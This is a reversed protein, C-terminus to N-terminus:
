TEATLIMQLIKKKHYIKTSKNEEVKRCQKKIFYLSVEPTKNLAETLNSLANPIWIWIIWLSIKHPIKTDKKLIKITPADQHIIRNAQSTTIKALSEFQHTLNQFIKTKTELLTQASIILPNMQHSDPLTTNTTTKPNFQTKNNPILTQNIMIISNLSMKIKPASNNLNIQKNLIFFIPLTKIKILIKKITSNNWKNLGINNSPKSKNKLILQTKLTTKTKLTLPYKNTTLTNTKSPNLTRILINNLTNM